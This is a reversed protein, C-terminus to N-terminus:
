RKCQGGFTFTVHLRIRQNSGDNHLIADDHALAKVPVVTDLVGLYQCELFGALVRFVCSDVNIEFGQQWRPFPLRVGGHQSAKIAASTFLTTQQMVSGFGLTFPLPTTASRSAPIETDTPGFVEAARNSM